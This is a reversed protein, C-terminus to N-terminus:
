WGRWDQRWGRWDGRQHAWSTAYLSGTREIANIRYATSLARDYAAQAVQIMGTKGTMGHALKIALAAIFVEAFVAPWEAPDVINAVYRVTRPGSQDSVIGGAETRYSIPVGDNEGNDTLPLVRLADEPIAYQYRFTEGEGLDAHELDARFMAFTWAYKSLEAERTTEYHLNVLRAAKYNDELSDIPAETLLGLAQNAIEVPTLAVM